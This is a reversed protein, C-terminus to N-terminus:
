QRVDVNTLRMEFGSDVWWRCVLGFGFWDTLIFDTAM